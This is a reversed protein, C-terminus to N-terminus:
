YLTVSCLRIEFNVCDSVPSTNLVAQCLNLVIMARRDLPLLIQCGNASAPMIFMQFRRSLVLFWVAGMERKNGGRSSLVHLIGLPGPDILRM